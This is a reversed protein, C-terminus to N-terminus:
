KSRNRPGDDPPQEGMYQGKLIPFVPDNTSAGRAKLFEAAPDSGLKVAMNYATEGLTNRADLDANRSLLYEIVDVQGDSAAYHIPRCGDKDEYELNFGIETLMRVIEPSGGAAAYCVIASDSQALEGVDFGQQIVLEVLRDMGNSVAMDFATHLKDPEISAGIDILYNVMEEFDSRAAWLLATYGRIAQANIDAGNEVLVRVVRIDRGEVSLILPTRQVGDRVEIDAGHDLLLQVIGPHSKLCALHLPTWNGVFGDYKSVSSNNIATSGKELLLKSIELNGHSASYHLPSENNDDPLDIDAGQEILYRAIDSFGREIALHLATKGDEDQIDLVEHNGNVLKQISALNSDKVADHITDGMAIPCTLLLAVFALAMCLRTKTCMNVVSEITHRM